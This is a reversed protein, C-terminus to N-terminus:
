RSSSTLETNTSVIGPSNSVDWPAGFSRYTGAAPPAPPVFCRLEPPLDLLRHAEWDESAAQSPGAAARLEKFRDRNANTFNKYLPPPAPFIAEIQPVEEEAM